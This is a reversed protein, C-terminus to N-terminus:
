QMMEFGTKISIFASIGLIAAGVTQTMVNRFNGIGNNFVFLGFVALVIGAFLVFIPEQKNFGIVMIGISFVLIIGILIYNGSSDGNFGGPTVEYEASWIVIEGNPDAEGQTIYKGVVNNKCFTYNYLTGNKGMEVTNLLLNEKTVPKLISTVNVSTCNACTQVLNVCDDIKIDDGWSPLDQGAVFPVLLLALILSSLLIRMDKGISAKM